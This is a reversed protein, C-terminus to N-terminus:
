LIEDFRRLFYELALLTPAMAVKTDRGVAMCDLEIDLRAQDTRILSCLGVGVSKSLQQQRALLSSTHYGTAFHSSDSHCAATM